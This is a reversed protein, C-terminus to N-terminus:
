TSVKLDSLKRLNFREMEFKQTTKTSIALREMDKAVLLYKDSDCYAGGSSRM